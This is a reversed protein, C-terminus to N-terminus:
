KATYYATPFLRRMRNSIDSVTVSGDGNEDLGVNQNYMRTPKSYLTYNEGFGLAKPYLIALYLDTLSDYEGYRERVTQLYERVLEMQEHAEMKRVDSMYYSTGLRSNLEKVTPVMFQILGTAGSGRRNIVAPNLKSESYMVAMLWEPPVDLDRAVEVVKEEFKETDAVYPHAHEILYLREKIRAPAYVGMFDLSLMLIGIASLAGGAVAFWKGRAQLLAFARAFSFNRWATKIQEFLYQLLRGSERLFWPGGKKHLFDAGVTLSKTLLFFLMVPLKLLHALLIGGLDNMKEGISFKM